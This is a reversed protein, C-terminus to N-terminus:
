RARDTSRRVDEAKVFDPLERFYHEGKRRYCSPVEVEAFAGRSAPMTWTGIAYRTVIEGTAASWCRQVGMPNNGANYFDDTCGRCQELTIM